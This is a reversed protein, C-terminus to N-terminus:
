ARRYDRMARLVDALRSAGEPTQDWAAILERTMMELAENSPLQPLRQGPPNVGLANCIQLVGQDLRKFKGTCIRQAQGADVGAVKGLAAYSLHKRNRAATLLSALKAVHAYSGAM